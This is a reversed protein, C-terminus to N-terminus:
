RIIALNSEYEQGRLDYRFYVRYAGFRIDHVTFVDGIREEDIVRGHDFLKVTGPHPGGGSGFPLPYDAYIGFQYSGSDDRAFAVPRQAARSAYQAAAILLLMAVAYGVITAIVWRMHLTDSRGQRAM